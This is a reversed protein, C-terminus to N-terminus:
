THHGFEATYDERIIQWREPEPKEPPGFLPLEFTLVSSPLFSIKAFDLDEELGAEALAGVRSGLSVLVEVLTPIEKLDLDM